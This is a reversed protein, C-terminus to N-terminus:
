SLSLSLGGFLVVAGMGAFLLAAAVRILAFPIRNAAVNGLWVAPLDAILMGATTGAVVAWLPEYRAALAITAIQTKDGIEVLFFTVLTVLFAGQVGFPAPKNADDDDKDPILMWAGLAIFSLGLGWRLWDPGLWQAVLAGVAGAAAHNLLTAGLIGLAIPIPRRFRAALMLALLQTKDGIEGITVALTSVLFADM